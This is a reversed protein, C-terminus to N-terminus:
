TPDPLWARDQHLRHLADLANLGNKRATSLYSRIQCFAQAGTLTRFGGSIKQRIKVMRIDRESGNNDFPIRLDEAFRLIDDVRDTMRRALADHKRQIDDRRWSNVNAGIAAAALWARHATVLLDPDVRDAGTARATDTAKKLDLLATIARAAWAGGTAATETVAVLERLIHAGCLAHTVQGYTDYPAWADHAAVGTFAPMIGAADIAEVGRREHVSLHTATETRAVHVWALRGAVRLGTEDFGAVPQAAIQGAVTAEFAALGTATAKIVQAVTATSVRVGLLDALADVTRAYPLHQYGVLYAAAAKVGPGYQVPANVGAPASAATVTGCSCRRHELRHARVRLSPAPIDFEQRTEVSIVPAGALTDGCSRCSVPPYTIVEDPVDVQRLTVGPSGPQKGPRLGSPKRLSKPAPKGLGDSSPPRSSNRSDSAVQAELVAIRSMARDLRGTLDAVM